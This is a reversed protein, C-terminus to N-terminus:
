CGFCALQEAQWLVLDEMRLIYVVATIFFFHTSVELQARQDLDSMDQMNKEDCFDDMFTDFLNMMSHM